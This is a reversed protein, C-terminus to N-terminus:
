IGKQMVHAYIVREVYGAPLPSGDEAISQSKVDGAISKLTRGRRFEQVIYEDLQRRNIFDNKAPKM